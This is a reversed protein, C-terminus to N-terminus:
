PYVYTHFQTKTIASCLIQLTFAYLHYIVVNAIGTVLTILLSLGETHLLPFVTTQRM